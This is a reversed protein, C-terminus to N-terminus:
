FRKWKDSFRYVNPKRVNSNNEVVELYGGQILEQRATYFAAKGCLQEYVSRPYTFERKGAAQYAMDEYLARATPSLKTERWHDIM